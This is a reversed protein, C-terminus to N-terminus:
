NSRQIYTGTSTFIQSNVYGPRQVINRTSHNYHSNACCSWFKWSSLTFECIRTKACHATSHIQLWCTFECIRTKVMKGKQLKCNQLTRFQSQTFECIRTDIRFTERIQLHSNAIQLNNHIWMDWIRCVNAAHSFCALKRIWMDPNTAGHTWKQSLVFRQFHFIIFECIRTKACHVTHQSQATFEGLWWGEGCEWCSGTGPVQLFNHIWM